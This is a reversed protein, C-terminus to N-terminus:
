NSGKEVELSKIYCEVWYKKFQKREERTMMAMFDEASGYDHAKQKM